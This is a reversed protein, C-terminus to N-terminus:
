VRGIGKGGLEDCVLTLLRLLALVAPRLLSPFILPHAYFHEGFRLNETTCLPSAALGVFPAGPSSRAIAIADTEHAFEQHTDSEYHRMVVDVILM